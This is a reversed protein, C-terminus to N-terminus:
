KFFAQANRISVGFMKKFTRSLHASDSFGAIYAAQTANSGKKMTNIACLLRKWLLYPRWAIHMEQKFLHLFRSESLHLGEAVSSAKWAAPKLCEDLFCQNLRTQLQIIRNDMDAQKQKLVNNIDINLCQWIPQLAILIQELNTHQDIDFSTHNISSLEKYISGSLQTNILEGLKSQPEILIIWGLAMTLSHPQAAAIIWPSHSKNGNIKLPQKNIPLTIQIANHSHEAADIVPGFIVLLGTELWIKAAIDHNM